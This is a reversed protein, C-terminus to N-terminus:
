IYMICALLLFFDYFKFDVLTMGEKCLDHVRGGVRVVRAVRSPVNQM